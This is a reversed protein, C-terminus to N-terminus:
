YSLLTHISVRHASTDRVVIITEPETASWVFSNKAINSAAKRYAADNRDWFATVFAAQRESHGAASLLALLASRRTEDIPGDTAVVEVFVFVPEPVGLDVLIVDPLLEQQDIRLGVRRALDDDRLAVKTRSESLWLVGPDVMFRPSFVEILAKSINGSKGASVRRAEGNPFTILIGEEASAATVGREALAVRALAANSLHRGRWDRALSLFESEPCTFLAAFDSALAWRPSSSTPDLGSREVAAGVVKFANRLTEDRIPERTTDAFWRGSVPVAAKRARLSENGWQVRDSESVLMAQDDTMRTVQNPRIWRGTGEVAGAYLMVFVTRAAM